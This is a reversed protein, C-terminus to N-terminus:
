DDLEMKYVRILDTSGTVFNTDENNGPAGAVSSKSFPSRVLKKGAFYDAVWIYV